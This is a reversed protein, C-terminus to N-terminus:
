AFDECDCLPIDDITTGILDRLTMPDIGKEIPKSVHDVSKNSIRQLKTGIPQPLSHQQIIQHHSRHHAQMSLLIPQALRHQQIIQQSMHHASM